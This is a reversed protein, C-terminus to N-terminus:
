FLALLIQNLKTRTASGVFGTGKLLGLPVLIESFYKEQFRIVSNKTMPGFWGSIIGEPYIENGEIKLIKQLCKVDDGGDGYGLNVTLECDDQKQFLEEKLLNQIRSKLQSIKETIEAIRTRLEEDTMRSISDDEMGGILAFVSFYDTHASVTKTALDIESKLPKWTRDDASWRYIALSNENIGSNKIQEELYTFSIIVTGGFKGVKEGGSFVLFEAVLNGIIVFNPPLPNEKVIENIDISNIKAIATGEICGSSFSAGASGGRDFLRVIEGGWTKYIIGEGISRTSPINSSPPRYVAVEDQSLPPEGVIVISNLVVLQSGDSVLFATFLFKGDGVPFTGINSNIVSATATQDYTGDSIMWGDDFYYWTSGNDNSIQYKIEGGNKVADETFSSLSSFDFPEKARIWPKDSSFAMMESGIESQPENEAYKRVFIPGYQSSSGDRNEAYFGVGGSLHPDNEDNVNGRLDGDLYVKINNGSFKVTVKYWENFNIDKGAHFNSVAGGGGGRQYIYFGNLDEYLNIFYYSGTDSFRGIIGAAKSETLKIYSEIIYNEGSFDTSYMEEAHPVDSELVNGIEGNPKLAEVINFRDMTRTWISEDPFTFVERGASLDAVRVDIVSVDPPIYCYTIYLTEEYFHETDNFIHQFACASHNTIIPNSHVKEFPGLPSDSEFVESQWTAGITETMLFYTEDYYIVQPAALTSEWELLVVDDAVDLGEITDAERAKIYSIGGVGSFWYLYYKQNNGDYFLTPNGNHYSEQVLPKVHDFNIGDTSTRLHISGVGIGFDETYVMYITSGVELVHPWRANTFLPNESYKEWNILDNSRALGTGHLASGDMDSCYYGWYRYGGTNREIISFTHPGPDEWEGGVGGAPLRAESVPESLDFYGKKETPSSFDDFFDFTANGNSSTIAEGNGYYLYITKESEANIMLKSWIVAEEGVPDYSEIWHPLVTVGDSDTIRIDSGDENAKSFDLNSGDLVIKVQYDELTGNGTNDIVVSSRYSWENNYWEVPISSAKLRVQGSIIELEENDYTYDDGSSFDWVGSAAYVFNSFLNSVIGLNVACFFSIFVFVAVKQSNPLLKKTKKIM